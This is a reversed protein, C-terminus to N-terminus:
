SSPMGKAENMGMKLHIGELRSPAKRDARPMLEPLAKALEDALTMASASSRSTRDIRWQSEYGFQSRRLLLDIIVPEAIEISRVWFLPNKKNWSIQM